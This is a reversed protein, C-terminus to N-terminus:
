FGSGARICHRMREKFHTSGIMLIVAIRKTLTLVTAKRWKGSEKMTPYCSCLFIKQLQCKSLDCVIGPPIAEVNINVELENRQM